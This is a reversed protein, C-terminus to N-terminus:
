RLVHMRKSNTYTANETEIRVSYIYIGQSLHSGDFEIMYNGKEQYENVVIEVPRGLADRVDLFVQGADPLCYDIQTIQKFPNPHNLGLYFGDFSESDGMSPINLKVSTYVNGHRDAMESENLLGFRYPPEKNIMRFNLSIIVDNEALYLADVNEWAMRVIGGVDNYIIGEAVSNLGTFELKDAPYKFGLTIAGVSMDHGLRIPLVFNENNGVIMEGSEVLDITPDIYKLPNIVHNGNVDGYCLAEFDATENANDVVVSLMTFAWDGAPFSSINAVSRNLVYLADFSSVSNSANVDAAALPLGALSQLQVVHRRILLADTANGGGWPLNSNLGLSYVGNAVYDFQYEGLSNTLVSDVKVLNANKLIVWSNSLPESNSNLYTVQGSISHKVQVYVEDVDTCGSSGVVTVSYATSTLPSAEPSAINPNNLSGTPSWSYTYPSVGGTPVANLVVSGGSNIIQDIGADVVLPTVNINLIVTLIYATQFPDNTNFTLFTEYSGANLGIGEISAYITSSSSPTLLGTNESLFVSFSTTNIDVDDIAWNDYGSGSHSLQYWRFRCSVSQASFPIPEEILTFSPYNESDYTNITTWVLGGDVSYQLAVDEGGDANECPYYGTGIKLYFSVTGGGLTVIDNTIADRTGSGDFYLANPASMVGCGVTATGNTISAWQNADIGPDFDDELKSSVVDSSNWTLDLTGPNSILLPLSDLSTCGNVNFILTDHNTEFVPIGIGKGTLCIELEADNNLIHLTDSFNNITNPNFSVVVEQSYGPMLNFATPSASFETLTNTIDFVKLTDCGTNFVTFTDVTSLGINLSDFEVCPASSSIIPYGQLTLDVPITVQPTLPDNSNVFINTQYDGANLGTSIFYVDVTSSGGNPLTSGFQPAFSLWDAGYAILRVKHYNYTPFTNVASTNSITVTIAGDNLWNLVQVGSYLYSVVIETGNSQDGDPIVGIYQGDITLTAYESSQDFDGNLTVIVRISDTFTSLNAFLHNTVAGDVYFNQMQTSDLTATAGGVITWNLNETGTNTITVPYTITDSCSTFNVNFLAPNTGIIPAGFGEGSVYVEVTSDNNLIHLTDIFTGQTTPAFTVIVEAEQDPLISLLTPSVSFEPLSNLIDTVHLTDCGNNYITFTDTRSTWQMTPDFNFVAPMVDIIPSSNINLTCPVIVEPSLPDNSSIVIDATYQGNVLGTTNFQINILATDLIGLTDAESSFSIWNAGAGVYYLANAFMKMVNPYSTQYIPYMKIGVVSGDQNEGVLANGWTDTAVVIGGTNLIPTTYYSPSSYTFNSSIDDFILHNPNSLSSLDLTGSSNMYNAPLFPSYGADLIGGQIAYGNLDAFTSIIVGGGNDVYEKLVDGFLTPNSYYSNSWTLVADYPELMSYNLTSPNDLIDIDDSTFMGTTILANKMTNGEGYTCLLVVKPATGSQSGSSADSSIEFYLEGLGTNFISLDALLSDNCSNFTFTFSTPDVNVIPAGPAYGQMCLSANGGNSYIHLTDYFNDNTIPNFNVEYLQSDGPLVYLVPTNISFESHNNVFGSIWLTDCGTNYIYFSETSTSWQMTSEFLLCTDTIFLQPSGSVTFVCHVTDKYGPTENSHILLDTEHVGAYLNESHFTVDVFKSNGVPITDEYDSVTIWPAYFGCGSFLFSEQGNATPSLGGNNALVTGCASVSYTSYYWSGNYGTIVFSYQGVPLCVSDRYTSYTNYGSGSLVPNGFGDQLEWSIYYTYYDTNIEVVIWSCPDEFSFYLESLGTNQIQLSVTSSDGCTASASLTTPNTELIPSGKGYGELCVYVLGDNSNIWITDVYNGSLTPCFEVEVFGTDGPLIYFPEDVYAFENLTNNMSTIFLTDCGDNSIELMESTCLWQWTSDFELCTSPVVIEPDGQVEVYFPVVLIPNQPDNTEIRLQTSFVGDVLLSSNVEIGISQSSSALVTGSSPLPNLWYSSVTAKANVTHSDTGYGPDVNGTNSVLVTIMNDALWLQLQPGTLIFTTVIDANNAGYSTSGIWLGDIYVDAYEYSYYFNGNVTVSIELTDTNHLLGTFTHYTSAYYTDWFQTKTSDYYQGLIFEYDGAGLGSNILSIPVIVTDFCSMITYISDPNAAFVPPEVGLGQVCMVLPSDNNDITFNDNRQGSVLPAFTVSLLASDGPIIHNSSLTHTYDALTNSVNNIFVSYTGTNYITAQLIQSNGILTPSYYLCPNSISISPSGTVNAYVSVRNSPCYEGGSAVIKMNPRKTNYLYYNSSSCVSSNDARYVYCANFTAYSYEIQSGSLWGSNNFCTEIVVNSAGDWYFPTAFIHENWGVVDNFSPDFFYQTLGSQWETLESVNTHGVKIEFNTMSMPAATITNFKISTIPGATLGLAWLEDAHILYQERNGYYYTSYPSPYASSGSTASIYNDTGLQVELSLPSALAEVYKTTSDWLVGTTYSSGNAIPLGGSPDNYWYLNYSSTALLTATNGGAVTTSTVVPDPPVFTSVVTTFATDNVNITDGTLVVYATIEFTSDPFVPSFDNSTAFIFMLSDGSPISTSIAESVPASGNISYYATLGGSITNGGLNQILLEITEIGLGCESEPSVFEIVSADWGPLPFEDAGICPNVLDRTDGDIDDLVESVPTGKGYLEFFNTHLDSISYFHPEVSISNTDQSSAIQWAILNELYIGGLYALNTGTSYLDNFDSTYTSSGEDFISYGSAQNAFINNFIEIDTNYYNYLAQSNQMSGTLNVSNFYCKVDGSSNISIGQSSNSSTSNISVFNNVVLGQGGISSYEGGGGTTGNVSWLSIGYGGHNEMTIHNNTIRFDNESDWLEIGYYYNYGASSYIVNGDIEPADQYGFTCGLYYQHLFHNRFIQTGYSLNFIGQGECQMGWSGGRLQNLIFRTNFNSGINRVLARNNSTNTTPPAFIRNGNFEIDSSGGRIQIVTSYYAGMSFLTINNVNIFHAGMFAMTYNDSNDQPSYGLKVSTSDGTASQFTITNTASADPVESILVQEHYVGPAVNFIVPGSVGRMLLDDVASNFTLYNNPGTGATDITYIGAMPLVIERSGPPDPNTPIYTTGGIILSDFVADLSDGVVAANAVDYVLWFFNPGPQLIQSGTFSFPSTPYATSGFQNIADFDGDNGTYYIKAGSINGTNITGTTNLFLDTLALPNTPYQAVVRLRLIEQDVRGPATYDTSAQNANSSIYVMNSPQEIVFDDFAFGDGYNDYSNSGFAFRFRVNSQGALSALTHKTHKWYYGASTWGQMDGTYSLGSIYDYNYWNQPDIPWNYQGLHNWNIGDTTYQLAVGDEWDYFHAWYNFKVVPNSLASFDFCPSVVYSQENNNYYGSAATIWCSYGASNYINNGNPDGLDWSSNIGGAFWGGNGLEFDESYPFTTINSSNIIDFQDENNLTCNDGTLIVKAFCDYQGIASFDATVPFSFTQTDGPNIIQSVAYSTNTLWGNTSYYLTYSNEVSTGRNEVQVSITETSSLGCGSVPSAWGVIALDHVPCTVTLSAGGLPQCTGDLCGDTYVTDGCADKIVYYNDEPWSGATYVTTIVDGTSVSLVFQQPGFGDDLTINTLVPSGNVLVTLTGSNWGDGGSDTLEITFLCGFVTTSMLLMLSLFISKFFHNTDM